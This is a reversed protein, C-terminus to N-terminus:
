VETSNNKLENEKATIKERLKQLGINSNPKQGYLEQYKSILEMREAAADDISDDDGSKNDISLEQFGREFPEIKSDKQYRAHDKAREEDTFAQGDSTIFLQNINKNDTFIQIALLALKNTINSM